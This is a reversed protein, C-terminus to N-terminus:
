ALHWLTSSGLPESRVDGGAEASILAREAAELDPETLHPAMTAAVEATTLSYGVVTIAEAVDTAEARRELTTDLNAICVDYAEVPQFGGAELSRGDSHTFILSPATYRVVGDASRAKGQFETPSGEAKRVEARDAQYAAETTDNGVATIVANVDLGDVHALAARVDEEEDVLATTAFGAFQLARFAELEHERSVLRTAVIVRCAYGSHSPRSRPAGDFPMGYKDRFEIFMAAMQETTYGLKKYVEIDESLGILALRWALQDGYRWRLVALAPSESYAWPCGPDTIHVVDIATTTV